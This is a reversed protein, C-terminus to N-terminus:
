NATIILATVREQDAWTATILYYGSPTGPSFQCNATQQAEVHFQQWCKGEMDMLTLECAENFPNAFQFGSRAPNPFVSMSCPETNHVASPSLEKWRAEYEQRFINAFSQDHVILTNEDNIHDASFTWNHSGTVVIPDSDPYGEDIIAYKHHFIPSPDHIELPIGAARLRSVAYTSSAEDELIVRVEVGEEHLAVIEDILDQSTLLLLAIEIHHNASAIANLIHCDTEDSPSFWSEIGIDNFFFDHSTNDTKAEGIRSNIHSLDTGWMEEFERKYNLALAQDRIVYAHNDDSTLQSITWNTSGTWVFASAPDDADGIMFKNHMIGDGTRYLIPFATIGNLVSNSTEDDTIYRVQVGRQVARKIAEIILTSGANYVAMDLTHSVQDILSIVNSEISSPETGAPASGDSYSADVHHNFFIQIDPGTVPASFLVPLSYITDSENHIQRLRGQYIKGPILNPPSFTWDPGISDTEVQEAFDDVGWEFASNSVPLDHWSIQVQDNDFSISAPPLLLCSGESADAYDRVLLQYQQNISTWIGSVVIAKSPIPQGIIASSSSILMKAEHGFQDYAIYPGEDFSAECTTIGVCTVSTLRGTFTAASIALFNNSIYTSLSKGSSLLQYSMVPSIQLEGKYLSLVGTVLISDGPVTSSLSTSYLAIGANNDQLYRIVGYEDGTSITGTTTVVSGPPLNKIASISQQSFAALSVFSLLFLGLAIKQSDGPLM